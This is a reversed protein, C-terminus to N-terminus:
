RRPLQVRSYAFEITCARQSNSWFCRLAFWPVSLLLWWFRGIWCVSHLWSTHLCWDFCDVGTKKVRSEDSEPHRLDSVNVARVDEIEQATRHRVFVPKGRWEFTKCKGEPVENLDIEINALAMQDGAMGKYSAVAQVAGKAFYISLLGGVGYVVTSPILRRVDDTESAPKNPDKTSDHRYGDFNPFTVDSHAYRRSVVSICKVSQVGSLLSIGNAHQSALTQLSHATTLDAASDKVRVTRTVNPAPYQPRAAGATYSGAILKTSFGGTRLLTTM